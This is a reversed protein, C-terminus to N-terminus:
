FRTQLSVPLMSALSIMRRYKPLSIGLQECLAEPCFFFRESALKQGKFTFVCVFPLRATKGTPAFGAFKGRLTMSLHGWCTYAYENSGFGDLTVAYDPFARFFYELQMRVQAQGKATVNFADTFMWFSEDCVQLAADIDQQSKATAYDAVLQAMAAADLAARPATRGAAAKPNEILLTNM